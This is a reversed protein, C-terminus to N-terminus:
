VSRPNTESTLLIMSQKESSARHTNMGQDFDEQDPHYVFCLRLYWLRQPFNGGQAKFNININLELAATQHSHEM